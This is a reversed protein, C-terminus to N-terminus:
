DKEHGKKFVFNTKSAGSIQHQQKKSGIYFNIQFEFKQM